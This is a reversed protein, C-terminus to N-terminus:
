AEASLWIQLARMSVVLVLRWCARRVVNPPSLMMADCKTIPKTCRGTWRFTAAIPLELTAIKRLDPIGGIARLRRIHIVAAISAPDISRRRGDGAHRARHEGPAARARRGTQLGRSVDLVLHSTRM